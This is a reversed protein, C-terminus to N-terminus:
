PGSIIRASAPAATAASTAAPVAAANVGVSGSAAFCHYRAASWANSRQGSGGAWVSKMGVFTAITSEPISAFWGSKAPRMTRPRLKTPPSQLVSGCPWPVKTAPIIAAFRSPWPITPIAYGDAWSITAFTTRASPVIGSLASDAAM